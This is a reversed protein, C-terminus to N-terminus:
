LVEWKYGIGYVTQIPQEECGAKKLKLRISKVHTDITRIDGDFDYGWVKLLLQDRDFPRKPHKIMFTLLDYERPALEVDVGNVSVQRVTQNLRIMGDEIIEELEDNPKIRRLLAEVRAVLEEPHFPKVLYDDAGMKLGKVRDEVNSKATLMLIPIESELRIENCVEWGDMGPMMVDLIVLHVSTNKLKEIGTLGHEAEIINHGKNGLYIKILNRMHYEDEIILVNAM